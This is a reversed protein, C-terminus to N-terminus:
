MMLRAFLLFFCIMLWYPFSNSFTSSSNNNDETFLASFFTVTYKKVDETDHLWHGAENTIADIKNWRRRTITKKTFIHTVGIGMCLGIRELSKVGCCSKWFM